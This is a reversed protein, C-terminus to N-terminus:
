LWFGFIKRLDLNKGGPIVFIERQFELEVFNLVGLWKM